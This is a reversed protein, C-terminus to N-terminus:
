DKRFLEMPSKRVTMLYFPFIGLAFFGLCIPLSICIYQWKFLNDSGYYFGAAGYKLYLLIGLFYGALIVPIKQAVVLLVSQRWTAGFCYFVSMEKQQQMLSLVTGAVLVSLSLSFCTLMMAVIARASAINQEWYQRYLDPGTDVWQKTIVVQAIRNALDNIDQGAKPTILFGMSKEIPCPTGKADELGYVIGDFQLTERGDPGVPDIPTFIESLGGCPYLSSNLLIDYKLFGAVTLIVIPRDEEKTSFPLGSLLELKITDGIAYYEMAAHTLIVVNNQNKNPYSGIALPYKIRSFNGSQYNLLNFQKNLKINQPDSESVLTYSLMNDVSQVGEVNEIKQKEDELLQQIEENAHTSNVTRLADLMMYDVSYVIRNRFDGKDALSTVYTYQDVARIGTIMLFSLIIMMFFLLILSLKDRFIMRFFLKLVSM